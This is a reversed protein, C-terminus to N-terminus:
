FMDEDWQLAFGAKAFSFCPFFLLGMRLSCAAAAVYVFLFPLTQRLGRQNTKLTMYCFKPNKIQDQKEGTQVRQYQKNLSFRISIGKVTQLSKRARREKRVPTPTEQRSKKIM